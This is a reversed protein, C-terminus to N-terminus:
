KLLNELRKEVRSWDVINWFAEIFKARENKYDLYYAHEWVDLVMLIEFGPYIFNNHKEVQMIIPRHTQDDVALVAWGSGEVSVAAQSFEKKFRELTGFEAEIIDKFPNEIKNTQGGRRSPPLSERDKDESFGIITLTQASLDAPALNEWFLSHLTHGGVQFSLEKLLAKLDIEKNEVRATELKDLLANAASVYAQHHKQHHLKLQEESIFPELDKYDYALDPLNYYKDM